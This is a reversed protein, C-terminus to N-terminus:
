LVRMLSKIYDLADRVSMEVLKPRDSLYDQMIARNEWLTKLDDGVQPAHIMVMELHCKYWDVIPREGLFLPESFLVQITDDEKLEQMELAEILEDHVIFMARM